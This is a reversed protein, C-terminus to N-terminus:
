FISKSFLKELEKIAENVIPLNARFGNKEISCIKNKRNVAKLYDLNIIFSRNIKHFKEPPLLKQIQGINGSLLEKKDEEFYITTYNGEAEFYLIEEVDVIIFGNRSNFKLKHEKLKEVNKCLTDIRYIFNSKLMNTKLRKITNKLEEEDVPKLLYDFAALKIAQIAYQDYATIFIVNPHTIQLRKMEIIVDFGSKVPMQIDLFILDPLHRIISEIAEDANSCKDIIQIDDYNSLLNTMIDLGEPEDDIIITKIKDKM